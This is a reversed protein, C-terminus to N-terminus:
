LKQCFTFYLRIIKQTLPVVRVDYLGKRKLRYRNSLIYFTVRDRISSSLNFFTCYSILLGTAFTDSSNYPLIFITPIFIKCAFLINLFLFWHLDFLFAFFLVQTVLPFCNTASLPIFIIFFSSSKSRKLPSFSFKNSKSCFKVFKKM